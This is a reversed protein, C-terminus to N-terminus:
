ARGEDVARQKEAAEKKEAKELAAAFDADVQTLTEKM